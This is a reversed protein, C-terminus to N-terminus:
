KCLGRYADFGIELQKSYGQLQKITAKYAKVVEGDSTSPQINEIALPPRTPRVINKHNAPCEFVPVKVEQTIVKPPNATCGVLLIVPLLLLSKM